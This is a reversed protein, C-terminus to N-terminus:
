RGWVRVEAISVVGQSLKQLRVYRGAGDVIITTPSGAQPVEHFELVGTQGPQPNPTDSILVVYNSLRDGCCDTRNFVEITDIERESGLDVEWWAPADAFTHTVSAGGWNGNTDGDVARAAVGGAATSSQTAPRGQSVNSVPPAAGGWVEVEALAVVGSGVKLIRVYRGVVDVVVTTPTGAQEASFHAFIGADGPMPNPTESVLVYYNSLRDGCCDTRNWVDISDIQAREGLDVEWWSPNGGNTHTVSMGAFAGNTNGDIGRSAVGGAATTSQTALGGLALNSFEQPPAPRGFVQVEALVVVGAGQKLIRVYRGVREVAVTTPVGAQASEFHQFVGGDGPLPNPSNSVLVYYNSLRDGCCDTRNWVAVSEIVMPEGLDVEWWSPNGGNTHTVSQGAFVGNTNGDVARSAVGGAATSSQSAAAGLAVNSITQTPTQTQTPTSTPTGTNTGTHSATPTSTRTRTPSSTFTNPPTATMTPTRTQTLTRTQTPTLTQTPTRTQTPTNTPTLTPTQTPTQSPTLSPTATPTETPTMTQTPIATHSPTATPTATVSDVIVAGAFPTCEPEGENILCNELVVETSGVQDARILVDVLTGAADVARNCAFGVVVRGEGQDVYDVLCDTTLSTSEVGTVTMVTPDFVLRVALAEVDTGDDISLRLVGTNGVPALFETSGTLSAAHSAGAIGVIPAIAM